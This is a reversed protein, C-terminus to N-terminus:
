GCARPTAASSASTTWRSRTVMGRRHDAHDRRRRPRQRRRGGHREERDGERGQAGKGGRRQQRYRMGSPDSEDGDEGDSARRSGTRPTRSRTPRTTRSREPRAAGATNPGFPTRKGYGNECVTLLFGDPDAVVMGVVEDDKGLKIGKVGAPPAAWRGPTPRASASRWARQPHSLVVEDGAQDPVRRDARRGRRPHHRHHRGAAAPQLGDPRDEQGDGEADGDAPPVRRRVRAGPHHEHDEGRAQAVARQRDVPGAVTRAAQPINYVKLWYLQGPETFCLLYAQTSLRRLLARRLRRRAPRGARGQRRPAPHPVRDAADAQHLRHSITVVNPEDEILDEIDVDGGDDTIETKRDDGYKDRM